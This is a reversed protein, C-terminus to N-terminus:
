FPIWKLFQLYLKRISSFKWIIWNKKLKELFQFVNLQNTKTSFLLRRPLVRLYILFFVKPVFLILLHIFAEPFMLKYHKQHARLQAWMEATVLCIHIMCSTLLDAVRLKHLECIRSFSFVAGNFQSSEKQIIWPRFSFCVSFLDFHISSVQLACHKKAFWRLTDSLFDRCSAREKLPIKQHKQFNRTDFFQEWRPMVNITMKKDWPVSFKRYEETNSPVETISFFKHMFSAERKGTWFKKDWLGFKEYFLRKTNAFVQRQSLYKDRLMKPHTTEFGM